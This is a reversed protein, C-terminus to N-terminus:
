QPHRSLGAIADRVRSFETSKDFFGRAGLGLAVRRYHAAPHNTLVYVAIWPARARLARLVDIGSSEFLMLDLVVADPPDALIAAIADAAGVAAGTCRAVGALMSEIRGRLLASDEVLFVSPLRNEHTATAM